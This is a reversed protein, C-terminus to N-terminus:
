LKLSSIAELMKLANGSSRVNYNASAIKLDKIIFSSRITGLTEKGYLKKAGFAGYLKAVSSDKDSLLIIKLNNKEYFKKHSAISDKSIGVIVANKDKFEKILSSYELAQKTCGSTNDRPYFYLVVIFNELDKLNIQVCDENPLSFLPASEGVKLM